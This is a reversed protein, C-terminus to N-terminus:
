LTLRVLASDKGPSSKKDNKYWGYANGPPVPKGVEGSDALQVTAGSRVRLGVGDPALLAPATQYGITLQVRGSDSNIVLQEITAVRHGVPNKQLYTRVYTQVSNGSILEQAGALVAADAARQMEARIAYVRGLDIILALFGLAPLLLVAMLSLTHGRRRRLREHVSV